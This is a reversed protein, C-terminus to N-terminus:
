PKVVNYVVDIHVMSKCFASPIHHCKQPIYILGKLQALKSILMNLTAKFCVCTTSESHKQIHHFGIWNLICCGKTAASGRILSPNGDLVWVNSIHVCTHTYTFTQLMSGQPVFISTNNNTLLVYRWDPACTLIYRGCIIEGM